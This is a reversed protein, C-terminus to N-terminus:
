DDEQFALEDIQAFSWSISNRDKLGEKKLFQDFVRDNVSNRRAEEEDSSDNSDSYDQLTVTSAKIDIVDMLAYTVQRDEDKIIDPRKEDDLILLINYSLFNDQLAMIIYFAGAEREQKLYFDSDQVAEWAKILTLFYVFSMVTTSFVLTTHLIAQISNLRM